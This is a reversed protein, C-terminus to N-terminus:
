KHRRKKDKKITKITLYIGILLAVTAVVITTCLIISSAREQTSIRAKTNAIEDEIDVVDETAVVEPTPTDPTKTVVEVTPTPTPEESVTPAPTDTPTPTATIVVEDPDKIGGAAYAAAFSLNDSVKKSDYKNFVTVQIISDARINELEATITKPSYNELPNTDTWPILESRTAGGDYSIAYYIIPTQADIATIDIKAKGNDVNLSRISVECLDPATQDRFSHNDYVKSPESSYDIKQSSSKLGFYKAAATADAVGLANRANDTSWYALDNPNDMHCHEIICAPVGYQTSYRLIGYYEGQAGPKTKVGRNLLGLATLEELDRAAFKYVESNYPNSQLPVWVEAGYTSHDAKANLHLSFMFDAHVSAAFIAREEISMTTEASDHTLYVTVGDYKELEQKMALAIQMSMYKEMTNGYKAGENTGGHGPDIVLILQGDTDLPYTFSPPEATVSGFLMQQMEPTLDEISVGDPLQVTNNAQTILPNYALAAICVTVALINKLKNKM